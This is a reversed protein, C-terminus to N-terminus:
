DLQKLGTTTAAYILSELPGTAHLDPRRDIVLEARCDANTDRIETTHSEARTGTTRTVVDVLIENSFLM